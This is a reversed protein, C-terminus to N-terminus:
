RSGDLGFEAKAGAWLDQLLLRPLLGKSEKYPAYDMPEASSCMRLRVLM